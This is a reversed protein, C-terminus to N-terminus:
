LITIEISHNIWKCSLNISQIVNNKELSKAIETAGGDGIHNDTIM